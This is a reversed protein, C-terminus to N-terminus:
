VPRSHDRILRHLRAPAAGTGPARPGASWRHGRTAPHLHAAGDYNTGNHQAAGHQAAPHAAHHAADPAAAISRNASSGAAGPSM